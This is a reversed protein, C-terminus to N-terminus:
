LDDMAASRVKEANAKDMYILVVRGTSYKEGESITLKITGLETSFSTYWEYKEEKLAHMVLGNTYDGVYTTFREKSEEPEGYKETLMSKLTEYESKLSTWTEQDPFLVSIFSVVDLDKLTYVGITCGKHGAFDGSLAAVGDYTGEYHFGAKIMADTYAKLTGDIPVGKFSLHQQAFLSGAFFLCAFLLTLHKKM